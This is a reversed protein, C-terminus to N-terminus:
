PEELTAESVILPPNVVEGFALNAM